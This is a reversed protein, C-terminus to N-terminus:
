PFASSSFFFCPLRVTDMQFISSAPILIIRHTHTFTHELSKTIFTQGTSPTVASAPYRLCKWNIQRETQLASWYPQAWESARQWERVCLHVCVSDCLGPNYNCAAWKMCVKWRMYASVLCFIWGFVHIEHRVCASITIVCRWAQVCVTWWCLPITLQVMIGHRNTCAGCLCEEGVCWQWRQM